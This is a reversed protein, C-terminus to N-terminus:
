NSGSLEQFTTIYKAINKLLTKKQRENLMQYVNAIMEDSGNEFAQMINHDEASRNLEPTRLWSNLLAAIETEGKNSKLLEILKLQNDERQAIYLPTAFPLQQNMERLKVLQSDTFGGALNEIFDVSRETRRHLQQEASGSLEKDRQKKLEKAFSLSLEDVQKPELSSLVRASPPIAPLMTKVYLARVETRFHHVDEAKLPADSMASKQVEQLFLVYEKLMVKRHWTMFESVEKKIIEKQQDNFSTYSNISYRLYADAYNYGISLIGCGSLSLMLLVVVFINKKQM